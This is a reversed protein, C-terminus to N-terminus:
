YGNFHKMLEYYVQSEDNIHQSQLRTLYFKAFEFRRESFLTRRALGPLTPYPVPNGELELIPIKTTYSLGMFFLAMSDHAKGKDYNVVMLDTKKSYDFLNELPFGVSVNKHNAIEEILGGMSNTDGMFCVKKCPERTKTVDRKPIACFKSQYKGSRLLEIASNKDTLSHSAIRRALDENKAEDILTICNGSARAAGLEAYSTTGLRQEKSSYALALDCNQASAMDEHDLMAIANQSHNRPDDFDFDTLADIFYDRWKGFRGIPYITDRKM